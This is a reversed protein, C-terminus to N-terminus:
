CWVLSNISNTNQLSRSQPDYNCAMDDTDRSLEMGQCGALEEKTLVSELKNQAQCQVMKNHYM